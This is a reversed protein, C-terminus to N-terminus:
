WGMSGVFCTAGVGVVGIAVGVLIGAAIQRKRAIAFGIAALIALTWLGAAIGGFFGFASVHRVISGGVAIASLIIIPAATWIMAKRFDGMTKKPARPQEPQEFEERM